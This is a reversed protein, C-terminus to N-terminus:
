ILLIGGVWCGIYLSFVVKLMHCTYKRLKAWTFQQLFSDSDYLDVSSLKVLLISVKVGQIVGNMLFTKHPFTNRLVQPCGISFVSAFLKM